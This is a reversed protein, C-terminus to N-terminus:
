LRDNFSTMPLFLLPVGNNMAANNMFTLLYFCGLRAHVFPLIFLIHCIGCFVM